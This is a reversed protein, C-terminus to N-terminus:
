GFGAAGGVFPVSDHIDTIEHHLADIQFRRLAAKL